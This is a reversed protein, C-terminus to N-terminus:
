NEVSYSFKDKDFIARVSYKPYHFDTDAISEFYCIRDIGNNVKNGVVITWATYDVPQNEYIIEGSVNYFAREIHCHTKGYMIFHGIDGKRGVVYMTDAYYRGYNRFNMGDGISLMTDVVMEMKVYCDNQDIKIHSVMTVDKSEGVLNRVNPDEYDKVVNQNMIYHSDLQTSLYSADLSLYEYGEFYSINDNNFERFLEIVPNGVVEEIKKFGSETGVFLISDDLTEKKLCGILSVFLILVFSFLRLMRNIM